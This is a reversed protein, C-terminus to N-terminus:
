LSVKLSLNYEFVDIAAKSAPGQMRKYVVVKRTGEVSGDKQLQYRSIVEVLGEEKGVGQIKGLESCFFLPSPAGKPKGGIRTLMRVSRAGAATTLTILTPDTRPDYSAGDPRQGEYAEKLALLNFARDEIIEPSCHM